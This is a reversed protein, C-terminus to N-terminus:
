NSVPVVWDLKKFPSYEVKTLDSEPDVFYQPPRGNYRLKIRAKVASVQGGQKIVAKKIALALERVARPDNIMMKIQHTNIFTGVDVNAVSGNLYYVQFVMEDVGRSDAKVRWSFRNAITTWDMQNPLFFGRFPFLLQFIFYAIFLNKVWVAPLPATKEPPLLPSGKKKEQPLPKIWRQLWRLEQPEYFIVLGALMVFPFFAIDDFLNANFLHFGMFVYIAWKRVPRYWLLLPTALDLILGGYTLIYITAENKVLPALWSHEDFGISLSRAPEQRVLWDYKLKIIGAYFYVIIMQLQFIFQEWRPILTVTKKRMSYFQDAHTCSLLWALLIYLYIHNNYLSTDQFFIYANGTAFLRAGWKFWVGAAMLLSLLLLLWILATMLPGSMPTLWTFGDYKFNVSPLVFMNKVLDIKLYYIMEFAMFLSYLIRFLGLVQGGIPQLLYTRFRTLM